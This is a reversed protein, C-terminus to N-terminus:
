SDSLSQQSKASDLQTTHAVENQGVSDREFSVEVTKKVMVKQSDDSSFSRRKAKQGTITSQFGVNDSRMRSNGQSRKISQLEFIGSSDQQTTDRVFVDRSLAGLGTDMKALFPMLSPIIATMLSYVMEAQTWAVLLVRDLLPDDSSRFGHLCLLRYIAIIIVPLRLAFVMTAKVKAKWKRQISLITRAVVAAIFIELAIGFVVIATWRTYMANCEGMDQAWPSQIDCGVAIMIVATPLMIVSVIIGGKAIRKHYHEPSLAHLLCLVATRSTFLAVLYFLDSAYLAKKASAQADENLLSVSKGLGLSVSAIVIVSQVVAFTLSIIILVDDHLLRSRFPYRTYLRTLAFLLVPVLGVGSAVVAWGGRDDPTNAYAPPSYGAPLSM